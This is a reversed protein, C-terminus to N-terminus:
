DENTLMITLVPEATDGPGCQSWLEVKTKRGDRNVDVLVSFWIRDEGPKAQRIAFLLMTFVDHMRGAFDQGGPFQLVAEGDKDDEWTGGAGITAEWAAHTMGVPYKFPSLRQGSADAANTVDVLVGDAIAQARSYSYVTQMNGKQRAEQPM